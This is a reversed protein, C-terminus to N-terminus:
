PTGSTAARRPTEACLRYLHTLATEGSLDSCYDFSSRSALADRVLDETEAASRGIRVLKSKFYARFRRSLHDLLSRHAAADDALGAMMLNQLETETALM